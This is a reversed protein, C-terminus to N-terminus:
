GLVAPSQFPEVILDHVFRIGEEPYGEVPCVGVVDEVVAKSRADLDLVRRSHGLSPLSCHPKRRLAAALILPPASASPGVKSLSLWRRAPPYAGAVDKQESMREEEKRRRRMVNSEM